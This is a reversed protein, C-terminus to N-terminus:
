ASLYVHQGGGKNTGVTVKASTPTRVKKIIKMSIKKGFVIYHKELNWVESFSVKQYMPNRM